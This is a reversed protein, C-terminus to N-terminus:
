VKLRVNIQGHTLTIDDIVECLIARREKTDMFSWAGEVDRIKKITARKSEEIAAIDRAHELKEELESISQKLEDITELLLEDGKSAYIGYLRKLKRKEDGLQGFLVEEETM